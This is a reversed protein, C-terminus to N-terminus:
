PLHSREYHKVASHWFMFIYSATSTCKKAAISASTHGTELKPRKLTKFGHYNNTCDNCLMLFRMNKGCTAHIHKTYIKCDDGIMEQYLMLRSTSGMYVRDWLYWTAQLQTYQTHGSSSTVYPVAAMMSRTIGLKKIDTCKHHKETKWENCYNM